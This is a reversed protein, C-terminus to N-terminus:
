LADHPRPRVEAVAASVTQAHTCRDYKGLGWGSFVFPKCVLTLRAAVHLIGNRISWPIVANFPFLSASHLFLPPPNPPSTLKRGYPEGGHLPFLVQTSYGPWCLTWPGWMHPFCRAPGARCLLPNDQQSSSSILLALVSCVADNPTGKM